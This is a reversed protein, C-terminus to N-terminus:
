VRAFDFTQGGVSLRQIAEVPISRYGRKDMDFVTLLNHQSPNYAKNGGKLHKRVGMRATMTRLEGTSRKIFDVSFIKGDSVLNRLNRRNVEDDSKHWYTRIDVLDSGKYESLSIRIEETSNKEIIEVIHSM